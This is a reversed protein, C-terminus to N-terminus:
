RFIVVYEESAKEPTIGDPLESWELFQKNPRGISGNYEGLKFGYDDKSILVKRNGCGIAALATLEALLDNVTKAM